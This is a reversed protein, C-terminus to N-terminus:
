GRAVTGSRSRGSRRRIVPRVDLCRHDGPSGLRTAGDRKGPGDISYGGNQTGRRCRVSCDTTYGTARTGPRDRGRGLLRGRRDAPSLELRAEGEFRAQMPGFRLAVGGTVRDGEHGSLFAGPLCAAVRAPDSMLEWVQEAPFSLDFHETIAAAPEGGSAALPAAPRPALAKPQEAALVAAPVAEPLVPPPM